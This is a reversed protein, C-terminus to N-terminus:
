GSPQRRRVGLWSALRDFLRGVARLGVDCIEGACRASFERRVLPGRRCRAGPLLAVSVAAAATSSRASVDDPIGRAGGAFGALEPPSGPRALAKWAMLLPVGLVAGIAFGGVLGLEAAIQVFNNHANEGFPYVSALEPSLMGRSTGQFQGLGVGFAPHAALMRLGVGAMEIRIGIATTTPMPRITPRAYLVLAGAALLLVVVIVRRSLARGGLAAIMVGGCAGAVAARSGAWWLAFALSGFAGWWWARMSTVALWFAPVVFLAYLSGVANIDPVHLGIRHGELAELTARFPRPEELFVEALRNATFLSAAAAGILMMRCIREGAGPTTALTLFTVYALFIGELWAMGDRLALPSGDGLYGTTVQTWLPTLAFTGDAAHERALRVVTAAVIVTAAAAVALGLWTSATRRMVQRASIATLLPLLLLEGVRPGTMVPTMLLGLPTALPLLGSVVLLGNEARWASVVFVVVAVASVSWSVHFTSLLFVAFLLSSLLLM